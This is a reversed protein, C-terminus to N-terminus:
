AKEKKSPVSGDTGALMAYKDKRTLNTCEFGLAGAIVKQIYNAVEIASKGGTCTLEKPLQNLFTIEYTPMPNMFVFYPDLLKHGRATTGYFVSQKTNIAVPVIRDTLEAFLASFRLLFPERCTTGEPCIVLDGEELLRRINAADKERDRSLAVAKIPSIIESFKSISYTVCSIKRGLAVATVVPDLVTRHNCVFLVGKQGKKPPPPPTGKVTVRIGLLKYNYWAIKEPLPINLYVRLISLMISIPLWLFTLLAALPTPRQAFRGEHFIVQSLLKNRPLAECKIRPVIYAEKCISMFDHDTESDGLGLDPLNSQFEKVLAEKKHEGVLLGPEKAFGTARGSKTADLETGLVKDAGLFSKAFPEVMLRPSTTVICRKGFSNFVRWTEPHVDEAYFKPLVSATVMEVDKIKLGAFTIFILTKVAATESIFLCTFYVFPVSALLLLGRLYSGAEIAVLMYYPFASPSVLLTGDFDSAVTQNSREETSCKSIPKFHGFAGMVM